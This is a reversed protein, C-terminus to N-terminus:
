SCDYIPQKMRSFKLWRPEEEFKKIRGERGQAVAFTINGIQDTTGNLESGM